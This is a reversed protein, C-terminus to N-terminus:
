FYKAPATNGSVGEFLLIDSSEEHEDVRIVLKCQTSPPIEVQDAIVFSDPGIRAVRLKEGEVILYIEVNSSYGDSWRTGM